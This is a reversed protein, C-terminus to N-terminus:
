TWRTTKATVKPIRNRYVDAQLGIYHAITLRIERVTKSRDITQVLGKGFPTSRGGNTTIGYPVRWSRLPQLRLSMSSCWWRVTWGSPLGDEHGAGPHLVTLDSKPMGDAAQLYGGSNEQLDIVGEDRPAETSVRCWRMMRPQGPFERHPYIGGYFWICPMRRSSLSDQRPDGHLDVPWRYGPARHSSNRKRARRDAPVTAYDWEKTDERGSHRYDNVVVIRDGALIGVKESPGNTM